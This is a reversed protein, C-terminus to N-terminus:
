GFIKSFNYRIYPFRCPKRFTYYLILNKSEIIWSTRTSGSNIKDPHRCIDASDKRDPDFGGSHDRTINKCVDLTINGYNEELLERAREARLHSTTCEEITISGTLNPDLWQHHNAHWLIGEPAGTIETSNGFVTILYSNTMEVMLINGESDCWVDNWFGHETSPKMVGSYFSIVESVNKCTMMIVQNWLTGSLGWAGPGSDIPRSENKTLHIGNNGWGLGKENFIPLEFLVPIGFFAYKYRMTIKKIWLKTYTLRSLFINSRYSPDINQTLFTEDNKTAPGTSATTTCGRDFISYLFRQLYVLRELKIHTSASLGKLEELIFPCYQEMYHIQEAIDKANVKHKNMFFSLIDILRYKLRLLRGAKFGYDYGSSAEICNISLESRDKFFNKTNDLNIIKGNIVPILTM